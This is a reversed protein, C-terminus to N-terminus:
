EFVILFVDQFQTQYAIEGTDDERLIFLPEIEPNNEYVCKVISYIELMKEISMKPMKFPEGSKLIEKMLDVSSTITLTDGKESGTVNLTPEEQFRTEITHMTPRDKYIGEVTFVAGHKSLYMGLAKNFEPADVFGKILGDKDRTLFRISSLPIGLKLIKPDIISRGSHECIKTRVKREIAVPDIM